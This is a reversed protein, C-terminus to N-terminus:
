TRNIPLEKINVDRVINLNKLKNIFDDINIECGTFDAIINWEASEGRRITRSETMLLDINAEALLSAVEALAGPKDDILIKLQYVNSYADALPVIRIEKRDIDAIILMKMSDAVNLIKRISAPIVIRGKSDIVAFDYIHSPM